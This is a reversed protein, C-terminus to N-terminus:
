ASQGNQTPVTGHLIWALAAAKAVAASEWEAGWWREGARGFPDDYTYLIWTAGKNHANPHIAACRRIEDGAAKISGDWQTLAVGEYVESVRELEALEEALKTARAAAAHTQHQAAAAERRLEALKPLRRVLEANKM